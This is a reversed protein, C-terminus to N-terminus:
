SYILMDDVYIELFKGLHQIFADNIYRQWNSPGNCLGFPMVHNKYNGLRTAFTTLDEDQSTAFRLNNFVAVIDLKTFYRAKVVRALTEDILPLPYKDKKTIENLRRYDICLRLGGGPKKVFLIPSAYEFSSPSIYGKALNDRVYEEILLTEEESMRRLPETRPLQAGDKLEIKVAHSNREPLTDKKTFVDLFDHYEQPLITLPDVAAEAQKAKHALIDKMSIAFIENQPDKMLWRFPAAGILCVQAPKTTKPPSSSRKLIKTIVTIPPLNDRDKENKSDEKLYPRDFAPEQSTYPEKDDRNLKKCGFQRCNTKYRLSENNFFEISFQHQHM